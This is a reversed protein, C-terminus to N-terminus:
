PCDSTDQEGVYDEVCSPYPPCLQNNSIEFDSNGLVDSSSWDINLECISEPIEGTLQNNSLWLEQLHTLNGIETPISGTLQNGELSLQELNTLNGIEPPISGTLQNLYLGLYTLNILNGIEPPISGTLKNFGLNLYTLNTLNGIEPPITGSLQNRSLDLYTLNTLKWVDSPLETFQAINLILTDTDKISYVVGDLLVETTPDYKIEEPYSECGWYIFFLVSLLPYLKKMENIM